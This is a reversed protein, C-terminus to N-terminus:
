KSYITNGNTKKSELYEMLAVNYCHNVGSGMCGQGIAVVDVNYTEKFDLKIGEYDIALGYAFYAFKNQTKDFELRELLKDCNKGDYNGIFNTRSLEQLSKYSLILESLILLCTFILLTKLFTPNRLKPIIILLISILIAILGILQIDMMLSYNDFYDINIRNFALLAIGVFLFIIIIIYKRM